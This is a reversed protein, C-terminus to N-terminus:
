FQKLLLHLASQASVEIVHLRKNGLQLKRTIIKEPTAVAIWVTGVPKEATGGDPGAIGSTALAYGANFLKRANGAMETVTEESVAGYKKLTEHSVRLLEQKFENAYSVIGGIFYNSSGPVSTILHALYGGTCSETTILTAKQKKLEDGVRSQLTDEDFGFVYKEILPLVKEIQRNIAQMMQEKEGVASLRLRVMGISPLYALRIEPPLEKEWENIKDALISEGIGQTLVTRHIVPPLKYKESLWPLATESMMAKMEFPVGPLSIFIKGREEFWM